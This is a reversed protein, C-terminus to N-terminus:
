NIWLDGYVNGNACIIQMNNQRAALEYDERYAAGYYVRVATAANILIFLAAFLIVKKSM